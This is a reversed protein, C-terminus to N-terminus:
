LNALVDHCHISHYLYPLTLTSVDTLTLYFLYFKGSPGKLLRHFQSNMETSRNLIQTRSSEWTLASIGAMTTIEKLSTTTKFEVGMEVEAM